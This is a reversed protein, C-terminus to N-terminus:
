ARYIYTYIYIYLLKKIDNSNSGLTFGSSQSKIIQLHLPFSTTVPLGVAGKRMVQGGAAV